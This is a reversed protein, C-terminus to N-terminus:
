IRSRLGNGNLVRRVALAQRLAAVDHTRLVDASGALYLEMALTGPLRAAAEAVGTAAGIFSKRSVGIFVKGLARVKGIDRALAFNQEVTKAFGFGPDFWIRSRPVGARVAQDAALSLEAAVTGAVDAGYDFYAGSQMDGPNGRSHCLILMAGAAAAVEALAPDRHLMSVDNIIRAGHELCKRATESHRTDISVVTEPDREMVADLVPLLRSLEEAPLIEASGPRTSEGGLDLWDAGDALLRLARAPASDPSSARGESFSDGTANVIGAVLPERFSTDVTNNM